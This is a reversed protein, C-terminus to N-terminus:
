AQGADVADVLRPYLPQFGLDERLRRGDMVAAFAKAREPDTGDPPPQGV